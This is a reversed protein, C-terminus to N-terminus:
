ESWYTRTQDAYSSDEGEDVNHSVLRFLDRAKGLRVLRIVDCERQVTQGRNGMQKWHQFTVREELEVRDNFLPSFQLFSTCLEGIPSRRSRRTPTAM